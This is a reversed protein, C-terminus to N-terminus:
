AAQVAPRRGTELGALGVAAVFGREAQGLEDALHLAGEASLRGAAAQTRLAERLRETMRALAGAVVDAPASDAAAPLPLAFQAVAARREDAARRRAGDREALFARVAVPEFAWPQGLCGRKVVPFDPWRELYDSITPLSVGLVTALERKNMEM